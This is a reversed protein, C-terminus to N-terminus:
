IKKLKRAVLVSIGGAMAAILSYFGTVSEGWNKWVNNLYESATLPPLIEIVLNYRQEVISSSYNDRNIVADGITWCECLRDVRFPYSIDASISRVVTDPAANNIAVIDVPTTTIGSFPIRIIRTSNIENDSDRFGVMLDSTSNIHLRVTPEVDPTSEIKLSIRKEEGPRMYIPNSAPTISLTPPPIRVLSTPDIEGFGDKQYLAYFVADLHDPSRMSDMDLFLNVYDYEDTSLPNVIIGEQHELVKSSISFPEDMSSWEKLMRTWSKTDKNWSVSVQYDSKNDTNIDVFMGYEVEDM